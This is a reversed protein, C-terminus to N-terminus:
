FRDKTDGAGLEIAGSVTQQIERDLTARVTEQFADSEILEQIKEMEATSGAPVTFIVDTEELTPEQIRNVTTQVKTAFDPNALAQEILTLENSNGQFAFDFVVETEDMRSDGGEPPVIAAVNVDGSLTTLGTLEKLAEIVATEVQAKQEEITQSGEGFVVSGSVRQTTDRGITQRVAEQFETGELIDMIAAKETESAAPVTFIVEAGEVTTDTSGTPPNVAAVTATATIGANTLAANIATQITAPEVEAGPGLKLSSAVM